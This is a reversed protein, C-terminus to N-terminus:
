LRNSTTSRTLGVRRCSAVEVDDCSIAGSESAIELSALDQELELLPTVTGDTLRFVRGNVDFALLGDDDFAVHRLLSVDFAGTDSIEFEKEWGTNSLSLAFVRSQDELAYFLGVM